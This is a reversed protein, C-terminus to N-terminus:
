LEKLTFIPSMANKSKYSKTNPVYPMAMEPASKETRAGKNKSRVYSKSCTLKFLVSLTGEPTKIMTFNKIGLRM